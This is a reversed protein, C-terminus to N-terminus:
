ISVPNTKLRSFRRFTATQIIVAMNTSPSMETVVKWWLKFEMRNKIAAIRNRTMINSYTQIRWAVSSGQWASFTTAIINIWILAFHFKSQTKIVISFDKTFHSPHTRTARSAKRVKRSTVRDKLRSIVRQMIWHNPIFRPDLCHYPGVPHHHVAFVMPAYCAGTCVTYRGTAGKVLM